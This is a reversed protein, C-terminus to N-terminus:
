TWAGEGGEWAFTMVAIGGGGRTLMGSLCIVCMKLRDAGIRPFPVLIMKEERQLQKSM